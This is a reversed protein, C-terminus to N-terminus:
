TKTWTRGCIIKSIAAQGVGFEKALNVQTTGESYKARIEIVQASTLKSCCHKEGYQDKGRGKNGRDRNNDSVTGLFLHSPNICRPNDCHHCVFLGDPIEGVYLQYAIRHALRQRGNFSFAGYGKPNKYANWEWCGDSKTFKDEFREQITGTM